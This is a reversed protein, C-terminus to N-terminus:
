LLTVVGAHRAENIPETSYGEGANMIAHGAIIFHSMYLLTKHNASGPRQDRVCQAHPWAMTGCDILSRGWGITCRAYVVRERVCESSVTAVVLSLGGRIFPLM